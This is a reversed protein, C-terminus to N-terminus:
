PLPPPISKLSGAGPHGLAESSCNWPPWPSPYCLHCSGLVTQELIWLPFPFLRAEDQTLQCSGPYSTNTTPCASMADNLRKQTSSSFHSFFHACCMHYTLKWHPLTPLVPWYLSIASHAMPTRCAVDNTAADSVQWIVKSIDNAEQIHQIGKKWLIKERDPWDNHFSFLINKSAVLMCSNSCLPM